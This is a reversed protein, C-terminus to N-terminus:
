RKLIQQQFFGQPGKGQIWYFGTPVPQNFQDKGQWHIAQGSGPIPDQIKRVLQGSANFIKIQSFFSAEKKVRLQIGRTFPNPGFLIKSTHSFNSGSKMSVTNSLEVLPHSKIIRSQSQVVINFPFFGRFIGVFLPWWITVLDGVYPYLIGCIRVYIWWTSPTIFEYLNM